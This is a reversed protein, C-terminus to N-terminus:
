SIYSLDMCLFPKTPRKEEDCVARARSRFVGVTIEGGAVHPIIGAEVAVDYFYSFAYFVEKSIESEHHVTSSVIEVALSYCDTFRTMNFAAPNYDDPVGSVIYDTSAHQWQITINPHFCASELINSASQWDQDSNELPFGFMQMRPSLLISM